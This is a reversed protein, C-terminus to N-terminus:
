YKLYRIGPVGWSELQRILEDTKDRPVSITYHCGESFEQSRIQAGTKSILSQVSSTLEYGFWIQLTDMVTRTVITNNGIADRSAEKYAKILGSVGLKTGGFYRVVVILTNTLEHSRIENLIPDGASHRPEGDDNAKFTSSDEGLMYAYCHHRADHYKKRLELLITEIEETGSVPRAFSLFKSGKERYIGESSGSLTHYVLPEM